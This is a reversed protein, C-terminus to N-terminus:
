KDYEFVKGCNSCEQTGSKSWQPRVTVKECYPCRLHKYKIIQSIVGISWATWFYYWRYEWRWDIFFLYIILLVVSISSMVIYVRAHVRKLM